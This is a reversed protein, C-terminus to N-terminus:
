VPQISACALTQLLRVYGTDALSLLRFCGAAAVMNSQHRGVLAVVEVRSRHRGPWAM